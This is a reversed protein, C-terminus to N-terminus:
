FGTRSLVYRGSQMWSNRAEFQMLVKDLDTEDAINILDDLETLAALASLKSRLAAANSLSDDILGKMSSSYGTYIAERVTNTASAHHLAQYAKYTVISHNNSEASVPLNWMELRRASQYTTEISASNSSVDQQSQMLSHSLGAFGLTGLANSLAQSDSDAAQRRRRVNTDFQAGRFALSKAGDREYEFKALVNALSAVDDVGYYADPDDINEFINLLIDNHNHEKRFSSRRSARSTESASIETFLLATRFMGCRSAARAAVSYDVDLWHLRDAISSEKPYEQTRLYLIANVLLKAKDKDKDPFNSLWHGIGESLANKITPQQDLQFLLVLHIIFPLAKESFDKVQDFVPTLANLLISDTVCASLSSCLQTLWTASSIDHNWIAENPLGNIIRRTETPPARYPGWQSTVLLPERLSKQCAVVLPEDNRLSAQSVTTRLVAEAIGATKTDPNATLDQLLSLLGMESGNPSPAIQLLGKLETECTLVGPIEGSAAFCRGLVRGAWSLYNQSLDRTKGSKWVSSAHLVADDDKGLIDENINRPISFDGCLLRLALQRSPANLLREASDADQLINLLLKSEYSTKDANGSSRIQSAAQMISQFATNQAASTFSPSEYALLYATFWKHFEQAKSMTAKFQSEQTTSSQSSELFVRLSALTSLAYGALFSPTTALHQSGRLLLYHTIGLADDACQSDVIFVRISDLLMELCYSQLASKGALSIIIRIKRLVSCAHLSGLAPHTTNLLKRVICVTLAPSWLEHLLFETSQCLRSLEYIVYKARFYPQQNPPLKSQLSYASRIEKMIRGAYELDSSKSFVKEVADEQDILDIFSAIIDVFHIYVAETFAQSGMAQKIQEEGGTQGHGNSTVAFCASYALVPAFQRQLLDKKSIKLCRAIALVTQDQQRMMALGLADSEACLLLGRLDDFDFVEFPLEEVSSTEMWTYLLQRAFLRFLERGSELGLATSINRICWRAHHTASSVQGPAEFIHYTCRRLLTSWKCALKSLALLRFAIGAPDEPDAPLSGLIDVFVDDHLTLIYLDFLSAIREAIFCKTILAGTSLIYLLSTRCSDLALNTAYEPNLKLLTFLLEALSIEARASLFNLALCTKILHNYFDGVQEALVEKDELWVSHLGNITRICVSLATECCEYEQNGIITGLRELMKLANDPTTILDSHFVERLLVDCSLFHEDPLRLLEDVFHDPVFGVQSSDNHIVKVLSLRSKTDVLFCSSNHPIQDIHRPLTVSIRSLIGASTEASTGNDLDMPDYDDTFDKAPAFGDMLTTINTMFRLLGPNEEQLHMLASASLEPICRRLEMLTTGIFATPEVSELGTTVSQDALDSLTAELNSSQSSNLGSLQPLLLIGIICASLLSQYRELSVQTGGENPKKRWSSSLEMLDELKPYLLELILKRTSFSEADDSIHVSNNPPLNYGCSHLESNDAAFRADDDLLFLYKDFAETEKQQM